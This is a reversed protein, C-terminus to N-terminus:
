PKTSFIRRSNDTSIEIYGPPISYSEVWQESNPMEKSFNRDRVLTQVYQDASGLFFGFQHSYLITESTGAAM